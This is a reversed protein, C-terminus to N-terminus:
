GAVGPEVRYKRILSGDAAHESLDFLARSREIEVDDTTVRVPLGSATEYVEAYSPQSVVVFRTQPGPEIWAFGLPKGEGTVCDGMDLRPDRLRGDNLEGFAGGCWHRDRERPGASNDCVYLGTGSGNRFTVSAGQVGVRVVIPGDPRDNAARRVCTSIASTAKIKALVTVTVSTRVPAKVIGELDVPLAAPRSGDMLRTPPSTDARECGASATAVGVVVCMVGFRRVRV